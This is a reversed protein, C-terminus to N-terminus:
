IRVRKKKPINNMVLGFCVLVVVYKYYESAGTKPLKVSQDLLMSVDNETLSFDADGLTTNDKSLLISGTDSAYTSGVVETSGTSVSEDNEVTNDITAETIDGSYDVSDATQSIITSINDVNMTGLDKMGASSEDYDTANSSLIISSTGLSTTKVNSSLESGVVVNLNDLSITVEGSYAHAIIPKFKQLFGVTSTPSVTVSNSELTKISYKGPLLEKFIVIGDSDTYLVNLLKNTEDYLYYPIGSVASDHYVTISGVNISSISDYSVVEGAKQIKVSVLKKYKIYGEPVSEQQLTYTGLPLKEFVVNGNADSTAEAVLESNMDYLKYSIGEITENYGKVSYSRITLTGTQASTVFNVTTNQSETVEITQTTEESFNYGKGPIIETITYSGIELELPFEKVSFVKAYYPAETQKISYVADTVEATSGEVSKVVRLTFKIKSLVISKQVTVESSDIAISITDKPLIYGDPVETIMCSHEGVTLNDLEVAGDENTTYVIDTNDDLIMSVGEIPLGAENKVVLYSSAKGATVPINCVINSNTVSFKCEEPLNYASDIDVTILKYTGPALTIQTSYSYFNVKKVFVNNEDYLYGYGTVCKNSEKDYLALCVDYTSTTEEANLVGETVSFEEQTKSSAYTDDAYVSEITYTDDELLATIESSKNNQIVADVNNESDYIIVTEPIEEDENAVQLTIENQASANITETTSDSLETDNKITFEFSTFSNKLSGFPVLSNAFFKIDPTFFVGEFDIKIDTVGKQVGVYYENKNDVYKVDTFNNKTLSKYVGSGSSCLVEAFGITNDSFCFPGYYSMEDDTYAPTNLDFNTITAQYDPCKSSTAVAISAEKLEGKDVILYNYVIEELTSGQFAVGFDKECVEIGLFTLNFVLNRLGEYSCNDSFGISNKAKEFGEAGSGFCNDGETTNLTILSDKIETSTIINKMYDESLLEKGLYTIKDLKTDTSYVMSPNLGGLVFESILTIALIAALLINIKKQM